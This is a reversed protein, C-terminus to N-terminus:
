PDCPPAAAVGDGPADVLSPLRPDLDDDDSFLELHKRLDPDLHKAVDGRCLPCTPKKRFWKSICRRHFAHACGPLEVAVGKKEKKEKGAAGDEERLAEFCISCEGGGGKWGPTATERCATLLVRPVNYRVHCNVELELVAAVRGGGDELLGRALGALRPVVHEPLIAEWEADTLDLDHLPPIDRLLGRIVVRVKGEDLPTDRPVTGVFSAEAGVSGRYSRVHRQGRGRGSRIYQTVRCQLLLALEPDGGGGIDAPETQPPTDLCVTSAEVRRRILPSPSGNKAQSEM